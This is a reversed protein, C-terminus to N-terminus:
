QAVRYMGSPWQRSSNDQTVMDDTM